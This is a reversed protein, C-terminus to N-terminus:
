SLNEFYDPELDLFIRILEERGDEIDEAHYIGWGM